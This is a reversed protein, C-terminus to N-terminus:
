FCNFRSTRQPLEIAFYKLELSLGEVRGINLQNVSSSLSWKEAGFSGVDSGVSRGKGKFEKEREEGIGM